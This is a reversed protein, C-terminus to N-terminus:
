PAQASSSRVVGPLGACRWGRRRRRRLEAVPGVPEGGVLGHVVAVARLGREALEDFGSALHEISPAGSSVMVRSCWASCTASKGSLRMM